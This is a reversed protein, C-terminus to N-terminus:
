AALALDKMLHDDDDGPTSWSDLGQLPQLAPAAQRERAEFTSVARFNRIRRHHIHLINSLRRRARLAESEKSVDRSLALTAIRPPDKGGQFTSTSHATSATNNM